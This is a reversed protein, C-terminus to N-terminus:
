PREWSECATPSPSATSTDLPDPRADEVPEKQLSLSRHGTRERTRENVWVVRTQARSDCVLGNEGKVSTFLRRRAAFMKWSIATVYGWTMVCHHRNLVVLIDRAKQDCLMRPLSLLYKKNDLQNRQKKRNQIM